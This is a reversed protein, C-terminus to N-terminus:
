YYQRVVYRLLEVGRRTKVSWLHGVYTDVNASIGPSIPGWDEALGKYNIWYLEVQETTKNVFTVNAAKASPPSANQGGGNLQPTTTIAVIQIPPFWTRYSGISLATLGIVLLVIAPVVAFRQPRVVLPGPLLLELMGFFSFKTVSFGRWIALLILGGVSAISGIGMWAQISM